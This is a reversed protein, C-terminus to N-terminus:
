RCHYGFEINFREFFDECAFSHQQTGAHGVKIAGMLSAIRGTTEWDMDALLGYIIGARYADGCGTPDIVATPTVPPIEIKGAATYILSGNGGCTVFVAKLRESLQALSLGTVEVIVNSEYDNCAMWDAGAILSEMEAANFLSVGQGPDFMYPIGAAQLQQAHLLMGRHTEPSILGIRIDSNDPVDVLHCYEMAGSHFATIQNDDLDTMIFACATLAEDIQKIYQRCIVQEDFWRAYADFDKGVTGVPYATIGLLGLNYVINGACGGFGQRMEPVLFSVNLIHLKEAVIHDKFRGPFVMINDFALSGCVLVSM